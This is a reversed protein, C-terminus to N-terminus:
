STMMKVFEEMNIKGDGDADAEKLMETAEEETLTEGIATLVHKLEEVSMQGNPDDKAFVRFGARLDEELNNPKAKKTLLNLFERFEILHTGSIDVEKIWEEIEAKTPNQGIARVVTGLEETTINGDGDKDFLSFAEKFDAIQESSFQDAM